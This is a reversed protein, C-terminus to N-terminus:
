WALIIRKLLNGDIAARGLLIGDVEAAKLLSLMEPHGVSGGYLISHATSPSSTMCYNRIWGITTTLAQASPLIDSGVAWIPEYAIYLKQNPFAKLLSLLPFLQQELVSATKGAEREQATEGICVIPIIGAGMLQYAKQAIMNNTEAYYTRRESHGIICYTCGIQALSSAAVDGTYAGKSEFGCDQAGWSLLPAEISALETLATFSPCIVLHTSSQECAVLCEELYNEVWALSDTHTLYMKWNAIILKHM